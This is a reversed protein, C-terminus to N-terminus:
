SSDGVLVILSFPALILLSSDTPPFAPSPPDRTHPSLEAGAPIGHGHHVAVCARHLVPIACEASLRGRFSGEDRSGRPDPSNHALWNSVRARVARLQCQCHRGRGLCSKM